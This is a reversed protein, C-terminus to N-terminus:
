IITRNIPQTTDEDMGVPSLAMRELDEERATRARVGVAYQRELEHAIKDANEDSPKKEEASYEPNETEPPKKLMKEKKANM